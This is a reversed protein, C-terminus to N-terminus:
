KWMQAQPRHFVPTNPTATPISSSNPPQSQVSVNHVSAGVQSNFPTQPPFPYQSGGATTFTRNTSSHRPATTANLGVASNLNLQSIIDNFTNQSVQPRSREDLGSVVTVNAFQKELEEIESLLDTRLTAIAVRPSIPLRELREKLFILQVECRTANLNLNTNM